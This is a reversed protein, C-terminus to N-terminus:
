FIDSYQDGLRGLKMDPRLSSIQFIMMKMMKLVGEHDIKTGPPFTTEALGQVGGKAHAKRKM